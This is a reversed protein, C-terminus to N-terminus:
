GARNPRRSKEHGTRWEARSHRSREGAGIDQWDERRVAGREERRGVQSGKVLRLVQKSMKYDACQPGATTARKFVRSQSFTQGDLMPYRRLHLGGCPLRSIVVNLYRSVGARAGEM